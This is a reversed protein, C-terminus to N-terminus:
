SEPGSLHKLFFYIYMYTDKHIIISMYLTTANQPMAKQGDNRGFYMYFAKQRETLM